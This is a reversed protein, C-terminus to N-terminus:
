TLMTVSMAAAGTLAAFPDIMMWSPVREMYGRFRGKSEFRARFSARDFATKIAPLMGGALYLGGRAGMTLVVDGALAGLVRSFVQLAETAIRDEGILARRSVEAAKLVEPEVGAMLSLAWHINRLGDGCILRENSVHEFRESLVRAIERETQDAPAFSAHGGETSLVTAGRPGRVLGGVGLGTGPGVIATTTVGDVTEADGGGIRELRDPVIHPTSAALASFDNVITAARMGFRQAIESGDVRWPRNTMTVANNNIPGAVAIVAWDIRPRPKHGGLYTDITDLFNAFDANRYSIPEEIAPAARVLAYRCNTGGIDGVLGLGHPAAM